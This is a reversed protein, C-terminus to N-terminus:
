PIDVDADPPVLVLASVADFGGAIDGFNVEDQDPVTIPRVFETGEVYVTLEAGRIIRAEAYGFANTRVEVPGYPLIITEGLTGTVTAVGSGDMIIRVNSLPSGDLHAFYYKILCTQDTPVRNVIPEELPFDDTYVYRRTIGEEVFLSFVNRTFVYNEKAVVIRYEGEDLVPNVRGWNDTIGAWVFDYDPDNNRFIYVALNQYIQKTLRKFVNIYVQAAPTIVYPLGDEDTWRVDISGPHKYQALSNLNDYTWRDFLRLPDEFPGAVVHYVGLDDRVINAKPIVQVVNNQEDLIEVDEFSVPDYPTEYGFTDSWLFGVRLIIEERIVADEREVAM